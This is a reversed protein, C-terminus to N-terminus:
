GGRPGSDLRREIAEAVTRLCRVRAWRKEEAEVITWPAHPSSTRALMDHVAARYDRWRARNRWDEDTIKYRRAPDRERDRFRRLQEARSIELWFKVVVAGAATLTREFDVIEEYARRWAPEPAFGEVREVLVRGYWTRDFIAFHGAAPLRRWFRWLYHHTADEGAPAAIPHVVYGRPDLPGALRKIAGGKGAADWGEFGIVVPVRAQHCAVELARLRTQWRDLLAQYRAEPLSRSLDVGALPAGPARRALRAPAKRAATAVGRAHHAELARELAEALVEFVRVRRYRRDTAPVVTWPAWATHTRALMEEAAARHEAYRRNAKWDRRTVRWAQLESAEMKGLRRRQEARSLHLFIKVFVAGDDALAKEFRNIEDYGAGWIRRPVERDVREGLVRGYWSRDFIAMAGREPARLWFRWLFPRSSEEETPPRTFHVQYGRPDLRGVMKEIADGKGAADWGELVVVVPVGAEYVSRQLASLRDRLPRYSREYTARDLKRKLDVTELM